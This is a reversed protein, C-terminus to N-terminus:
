FLGALLMQIHAVLLFNVVLAAKLHGMHLLFAVLHHTAEQAEMM